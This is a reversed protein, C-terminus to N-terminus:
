LKEFRVNTELVEGERILRLMVDQGALQAEAEFLTEASVLHIDGATILVDGPQLGARAASTNDIVAVVKVGATRQLNYRDDSSLDDVHVGLVLRDVKRLFAASFRYKHRVIPIPVGTFAVVAMTHEEGMYENNALVVDAGAARAQTQLWSDPVVEATFFRTSGVQFYGQRLYRNTEPVLDPVTHVEVAAAAPALRVVSRMQWLDPDPRFLPSLEGAIQCGSFLALPLLLLGFRRCIM